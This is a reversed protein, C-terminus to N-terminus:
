TQGMKKSLRYLSQLNACFETGKVETHQSTCDILQAHLLQNGLTYIQINDVTSTTKYGEYWSIKNNNQKM